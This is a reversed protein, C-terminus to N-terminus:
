GIKLGIMEGYNVEGLGATKQVGLRSGVNGRGVQPLFPSTLQKSGWCSITARAM